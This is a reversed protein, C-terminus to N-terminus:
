ANNNIKVNWSISIRDKNNLNQTVKHSLWSPFIVIKGNEPTVTFYEFIQKSKTMLSMQLNLPNQLHLDGSDSTVDVYLVGSFLNKDIPHLHTHTEQYAGKPSINVWIDSFNLTQTIFGWEKYYENISFKLINTLTKSQINGGEKVGIDSLTPCHWAEKFVNKNSFIYEKVDKQIQILHENPIQGLYIPLQFPTIIPTDM